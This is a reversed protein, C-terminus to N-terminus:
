INMRWDAKAVGSGTASQGAGQGLGCFVPGFARRHIPDSLSPVPAELFRAFLIFRRHLAV